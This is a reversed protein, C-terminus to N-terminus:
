PACRIVPTAADANPNPAPAPTPVGPPTVPTVPTTTAPQVVVPDNSGGCAALTGALLLGLVPLLINKMPHPDIQTARQFAARAFVDLM